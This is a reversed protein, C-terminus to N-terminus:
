TPVDLTSLYAVKTSHGREIEEELSIVLSDVHEVDKVQSSREFLPRAAKFSSIAEEFDGKQQSIEGLHLM